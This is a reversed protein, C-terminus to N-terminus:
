RAQAGACQRGRVTRIVRARKSRPLRPEGQRLQRISVYIGLAGAVWGIAPSTVTIADQLLSLDM